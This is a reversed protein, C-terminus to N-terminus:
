CQGDGVDHKRVPPLTLGSVKPPPLQLYYGHEALASLVATPEARALRRQADLEFQLALELPGMRALLEEPVDSFDDKAGVYLYMDPQKKGRYVWCPISSM